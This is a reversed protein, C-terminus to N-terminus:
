RRRGCPRIGAPGSSSSPSPGNSARSGTSASRSGSGTPGSWSPPRRRASCRGAHGADMIRAARNLTPGFWDGDREDAEGTHLGMRVPLELRLQAELAAAVAETAAPFVAAIGDGTHKFVTGGHETVATRLVADHAALAARMADPQEAWRATSGEIDTFLFTLTRREREM